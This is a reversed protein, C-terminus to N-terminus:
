ERLEAARRGVEGPTLLEGDLVVGVFGDLPIHEFVPAGLRAFVPEPVLKLATTVILTPLRQALERTGRINLVTDPGIADAGALAVAPEGVRLSEPLQALIQNVISSSPASTVPVGQEGVWTVAAKVTNEVAHDLEARIRRLAEAPEASRVANAIHWMPAYGPLRATLFETADAAAAPDDILDLLGQIVLRAVGTAGATTVTVAERLPTPLTAQDM